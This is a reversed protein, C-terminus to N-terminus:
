KYFLEIMSNIWKCNREIKVWNIRRMKARENLWGVNQGVAVQFGFAIVKASAVVTPENGEPM